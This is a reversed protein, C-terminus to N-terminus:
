DLPSNHKIGRKIMENVLINHVDIIFKEFDNDIQRYKRYTAWLQHCRRHLSVLEVNSIKKVNIKTIQNLKM